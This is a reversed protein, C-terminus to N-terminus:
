SWVPQAVPFQDISVAFGRERLFNVFSVQSAANAFSIMLSQEKQNSDQFRVRVAWTDRWSYIKGPEIALVQTPKVLIMWDSEQRSVQIGYARHIYIFHIYVGLSKDEMVFLNANSNTFKRKTKGFELPEMKKVQQFMGTAKIAKSVEAGPAVQPVPYTGFATTPFFLTGICLLGAFAMIALALLYTIVQGPKKGEEIYLITSTKFGASNIDALDKQIASQLDSPATTTMGSITVTADPASDLEIKKTRVFVVADDNQDILPYIVAKKVGDETETYALNYSAVGSVNIYQKAGIEGSVLQSITVEQSTSPNKSATILGDVVPFLFIVLFILVIYSFGKLSGVRGKWRLLTENM